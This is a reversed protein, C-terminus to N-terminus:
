KRGAPSAEGPMRALRLTLERSLERYDEAGPSRPDYDLVSKRYSPAEKLRVNERIFATFLRDGFKEKLAQTVDRALKTRVDVRCALVGLLMLEPNLRERVAEITKLLAALGELAMFSAEAAVLVLNAATLASVSLFGLSPPCDMIIWDFDPFQPSRLGSRLIAESGPEAASAKEAGVLWPGSPILSLRPISTEVILDKLTGVRSGTLLEFLGRGGDRVGLWSSASAQPDLDIVLVRSGTEALAAALNVVTTTKGSGGKQNAVAVIRV